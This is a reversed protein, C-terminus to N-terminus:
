ESMRAGLTALENFRDIPEGAAWATARLLLLRYLPDDFTWTYHGPISVFIRGGGKGQSRTWFIPRPKGDEIASGLVKVGAPDGTLDWYSEDTLRLTGFGRTIPHSSGTLDVALAGHRFKSTGGKWALGIRRSWADVDNHGDVSYHILVLGGGRALYRDLEGARAASWGPNNSNMIIVDADKFNEASPWGEVTSVSVAEATAFLNGWRRQWLPYDHEGPGHDKTGAALVIRLTRPKVIPVSGKLVAEVEARRRPLPAGEREIAAPRLPETLLFTLLDRLKEPGLATDLGEPMISVPSPATTEVEGRSVKTQKSATDSVVLTDGESRLTGQLVRGDKLALSYAVFDPNIASNPTHIDRMVSLYDRHVLNSLDPGIDSGRGRVQHCTSCRAQESNFVSRGRAWDGGNLEPLAREETAESRSTLSAWPLVFRRLPLARPRADEETTYSVELTTAEGTELAVEVPLPEGAKPKVAIRVRYRGDHSEGAVRGAPTTLEIPRSGAFTLTVVEDPLTADVTSGPQVAPRLAQWLDLKTRLTIRGPQSLMKWLRDHDVSAATFTRAVALDLHPLWGSWTASGSASRWAAEAGTLDYGLDIAAEQRLGATSEPRLQGRLTIAYSAAEPHPATALLLTRRDASVQVSFIPLEFRPQAMQRRVVEYGPRMAEFRDGPRVAKGYEIAVNRALERLRAPHLPRDFAVVVEQPGSAWALVPQPPTNRDDYVVKYLKGHGTPGSGWDPAGSHVAVVLDGRPSVCADATLMNLCALLHNQAVYGSATRALKTRYLKGRSYGSVLADGEWFAPGFIPGGHVPDNFNLGCTSQHQPAYDFVSPEDIVGPLHKPHRPPFGYHRGPQIHLLEDFPNGNSLWTAGEQDTAFLDGLRNFALAVPFRIGTAVVERSRFDPAVKQITGRETKLDFHSRGDNDILYANSYDEVGLGFYVHGEKDVAVGLADVGHKLQQWGQAVVIEKDAKGDRDTDVILSIKGKSAVFVGEGLPYGPPTLAMGIPSQLSGRNEWFHEVTTEVGTRKPDSLPDINGDYGVAVLKGDARYKVNNVNRLAVPIERVTFGPVLMQVPPPDAVTVLPKGAAPGRTRTVIADGARGIRAALYREVERREAEDLVRDYILLQLIDGDLFGSPFPAGGANNYRRAGVTLEDAYIPFDNRNRAGTLKGDLYLRTGGAGITSTVTIVRVVGFGSPSVGGMLNVMGPFGGGELNLASFRPTGAAGMDLNLGTTYDNKGEQNMAFFAPFGGPNSFPTAVVFVTIDRFSKGAKLLILHSTEGDFRVAGDNYTPQSEVRSQLLDRHHVSADHWRDLKAGPRAQPLGRTQRAANLRGADLWMELGRIVKLGPDAWSEITAQGVAPTVIATALFLGVFPALHLARPM